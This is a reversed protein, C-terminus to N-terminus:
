STTTSDGGEELWKEWKATREKKSEESEAVFYDTVGDYPTAELKKGGFFRGNM